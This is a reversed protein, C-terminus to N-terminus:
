NVVSKKGKYNDPVAIIRGSSGSCQLGDDSIEISGSPTISITSLGYSIPKKRKNLSDYAMERAPSDRFFENFAYVNSKKILHLAMHDEVEKDYVLSLNSFPIIILEISRYRSSLDSKIPLLLKTTLMDMVPMTYEVSGERIEQSTVLKVLLAFNVYYDKRKGLDDKIDGLDAVHANGMKLIHNIRPLIFGNSGALVKKGNSEKLTLFDFPSLGEYKGGVGSDRRIRDYIREALDGSIIEPASIGNILELLDKRQAKKTVERIVTSAVQQGANIEGKDVM